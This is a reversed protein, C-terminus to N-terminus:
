DMWTISFHGEKCNFHCHLNSASLMIGVMHLMRRTLFIVHWHAMHLLIPVNKCSCILYKTLECVSVFSDWLFHKNDANGLRKDKSWGLWNRLTLSSNQQEPFWLAKLTVVRLDIGSNARWKNWEYLAQEYLYNCVFHCIFIDRCFHESIRFIEMLCLKWLYRLRSYSNCSTWLM